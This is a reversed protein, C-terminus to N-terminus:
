LLFIVALISLIEEAGIGQAVEAGVAAAEKAEAFGVGSEVAAQEPVEVSEITDGYGKAGKEAQQELKKAVDKWERTIEGHGTDEARRDAIQRASQSLRQFM